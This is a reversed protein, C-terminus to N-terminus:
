VLHWDTPVFGQMGQLFGSDGTLWQSISGDNARWM